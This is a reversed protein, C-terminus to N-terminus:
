RLLASGSTQQLMKWKNIEKSSLPHLLGLDLHRCEVGSRHPGSQQRQLRAPWVVGCPVTHALRRALHKPHAPSCVLIWYSIQINFISLAAPLLPPLTLYPATLTPSAPSPKEANFLTTPHKLFFISLAVALCIDPSSHEWYLFCCHLPGPAHGHGTHQLFMFLVPQLPPLSTSLPSLHSKFTSAPGAPGQYPSHSKCQTLHAGRAPESCSLLM